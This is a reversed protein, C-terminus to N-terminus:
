KQINRVCKNRRWVQLCTTSLNLCNILQRAANVMKLQLNRDIHSRHSNQSLWFSSRHLQKTELHTITKVLILVSFLIEALFKLLIKQPSSLPHLTTLNHSARPGAQSCYSYTGILKTYGSLDFYPSLEIICPSQGSAM